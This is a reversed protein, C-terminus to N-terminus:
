RFFSLGMDFSYIFKNEESFELNFELPGVISEFGITFGYGKKLKKINDLGLSFNKDFISYNSNRAINTSFILNLKDFLTYQLGINAILTTKAQFEGPKYGILEINDLSNKLKSGIYLLKNEPIYHGKLTAITLGNFYTFNEFLERRDEVEFKYKFFDGSRIPSLINRKIFSFSSYNAEASIKGGNKPFIDKDFNDFDINAFFSIEKTGNKEGEKLMDLSTYFLKYESVEFRIGTNFLFSDFLTTRLTPEIKAVNYQFNSYTYETETSDIINKFTIELDQTSFMSNVGVGLRIPRFDSEVFYSAKAGFDKGLKLDLKFKSGKMLSNRLTLNLLGSANYESDYHFGVRVLNNKKEEFYIILNYGNDKEVLKYYVSEFFGLGYVRSIGRNIDELNCFRKKDISLNSYILQRSVKNLGRFYLSNIFISDKDISKIKFSNKKKQLSAIEKFKDLYKKGEIEGNKMLSDVNDFSTSNFGEINPIILIDSDERSKKVNNAGYFSISQEMVKILSNLQDKKYLPAGVDVAIVIDAGMDRVIDVPLNNSIGGDVLLNDGIKVPTFVSPISMSARLIKPLYGNKFVVTKGNEIDTAVVRLPINYDDFNEINHVPLTLDSLYASLYQGRILGKPLSIDFSDVPFSMFYRVDDSRMSKSKDKRPVNDRMLDMWKTKKVISDMQSPSYGISYLAAAVSGMSTGAIYDIKLGSEEIVKLVGVHAIGKAGGGSLVLGVKPVESFLTSFVIIILLLSKKM